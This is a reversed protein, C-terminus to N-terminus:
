ISLYYQSTMWPTDSIYMFTDPSPVDKTHLSRWLFDQSPLSAKLHPLHTHHNLLCYLCLEMHHLPFPFFQSTFEPGQAKSSKSPNLYIDHYQTDRNSLPLELSSFHTTWPQLVLLHCAAHRAAKCLWVEKPHLFLKLLGNTHVM